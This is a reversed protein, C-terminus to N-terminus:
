FVLLDAVSRTDDEQKDSAASPIEYNERMESPWNLGHIKSSKQRVTKQCEENLSKETPTERLKTLDSLDNLNKLFDLAGSFISSM